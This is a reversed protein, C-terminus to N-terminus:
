ATSDDSLRERLRQIAQRALEKNNPNDSGKELETFVDLAEEYRGKSELQAAKKLSMKLTWAAGTEKDSETVDTRAREALTEKPRFAIWIVLGLPWSCLIVFLAESWGSKGRNQADIYVWIISWVYLGVIVLGFLGSVISEIAQPDM